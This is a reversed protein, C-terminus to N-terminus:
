QHYGTDQLRGKNGLHHNLVLELIATVELQECTAENSHGRIKTKDLQVM